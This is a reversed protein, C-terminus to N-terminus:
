DFITMWYVLFLILHVAGHLVNTRVSSFTLVSTAVTTLLMLRERDPLGFHPQVGMALCVAMVVPATLGITAVISGLCINAARQLQNRWAAQVAGLAEPALVICAIIVGGMAPPASLAALGYELPVALKKALLIVVLLYLVLLVTHWPVSVPEEHCEPHLQADGTFYSRHRVTQIALFTAYLGFCATAVFVEQGPTLVPGAAKQTYSPLVLTVVVLVLIVSLYANAGQLNVDQERHRLGGLLLCAGVIGGLVIMVVAYMADRAVSLHGEGHLMVSTVLATEIAIVSLTLILTGYPEGLIEALADAHRVVQFTSLVIAGLLVLSLGAVLLPQSGVLHWPTWLLFFGVTAAGLALPWERWLGSPWVRPCAEAM